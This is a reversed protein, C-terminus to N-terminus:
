SMTAAAVSLASRGQFNDSMLAVRDAVSGAEKTASVIHRSEVWFGRRKEYYVHLIVETRGYSVWDGSGWDKAGQAKM